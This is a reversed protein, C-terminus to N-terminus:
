FVAKGIPTKGCQKAQGEVGFVTVLSDGAAWIEEEGSARLFSV